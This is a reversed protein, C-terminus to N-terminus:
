RIITAIPHEGRLSEPADSITSVLCARRPVDETVAGSIEAGKWDEISQSVAKWFWVEQSQHLGALSAERVFSKQQCFSKQKSFPDFRIFYSEM